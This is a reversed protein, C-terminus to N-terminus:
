EILVAPRMPMAASAKKAKEDSAEGEMMVVCECGFERSLFEAAGGLAGLEEEQALMEPSLENVKKTLAQLVKAADKAERKLEADAMAEKMAADVRKHKYALSYLKRKWQPAVFLNIRAPKKRIIELIHKVDEVTQVVVNEAREASTIKKEDAKPFEALSVFMADKVFKKKGLAEWLEEAFHPIFPGMVLCWNELYERLAAGKGGRKEYWRFDNFTSYLFEQAIDRLRLQEFQSEANRLRRHLRSLLWEDIPAPEGCEADKLSFIHKLRSAVGDAMAQNFDSDRDLDAGAVVCMRVVDAGYEAVATRLPLINGMSKSMKSGEMLVFGNTAIQKPWKERPFVAVHNFIFFTLHNHVLDGASHSSDLPYWYLFEERMKELRENLEADGGMVGKGKRANAEGSGAGRKADGKEKGGGKGKGKGLFVYDLQEETLKENKDLLHAITYFAMYVTSDSLAEIMKTEDFPFKTGLGSARTCAKEKLWDITYLYEPLLKEPIIKMQSFCEKALKKWEPNGYDIFWQDSVSKVICLEGCRCYVPGNVIEYMALAKKAKLLEEKIKEKAEIVPENAHEGAVMKGTHAEKRYIEKTAEEARPDNQDRVGMKEVIEKAPFKGFGEIALVQIPLIKSGLDRLALYDYPAHAPVSMVVGTGNKPDVFSAPLLPIKAGTVPNVCEGKMESGSVEGIVEVERGQMAFKEAAERSIYYVEGDIKAKKYEVAPNVWVNTVGYVTEPRFTGTILYGEMYAFKICVYEGLEPDVDGRTDHSGVANNCSPCWPVPHTGKTIYGKEELKRFQWQIYSNFAPDYTYFKRRWDISFGMERMGQEIERSFHSVLRVPDNLSTSVERPIGYVREFIEIIEADRSALRKAMGLIPTGTVHFAMPFLVNFGKMRKYRAYVDTTTYTRAHGIHQPSNPYPFAATLYFKKGSGSDPEFVRADGWKKQWKEQIARM